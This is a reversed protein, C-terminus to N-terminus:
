VPDKSGRPGDLTASAGNAVSALAAACSAWGEGGLRAAETLDVARGHGGQREAWAAAHEPSCLLVTPDCFDGRLDAGGEALWLREPRAAPPWGGETALEIARGCVACETWIAADTRLAAAIGISDYACWTQFETGDIAIRHQGTTLSLGASGTVRGGADRDIWGAAALQDLMTALGPIPAGSASAIEEPEIARREILLLAFATERIREHLDAAPLDPRRNRADTM